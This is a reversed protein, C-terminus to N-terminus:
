DFKFMSMFQESTLRYKPTDPVIYVADEDTSKTISANQGIFNRNGIRINHGISSNIGLFSNNGISSNGGIVTGSTIWVNNGVITHHAVVAGSYIATNDGIEAFSGISVNSFILTNKGIKANSAVDAKCSVYGPLSYGKRTAAECKDSRVSNLKHYGIAIIMDNETPPFVTEIIEFDIVPLGFKTDCNRYKKDVTFAVINLDSTTDNSISSYLIDSIKSIGFIICNRKNM